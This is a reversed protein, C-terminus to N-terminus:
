RRKDIDVMIGTCTVKMEWMPWQFIELYPKRGGSKDMGWVGYQLWPLRKFLYLCNMTNMTTLTQLTVAFVSNAFM